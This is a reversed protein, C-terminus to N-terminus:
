FVMMSDVWWQSQATHIAKRATDASASDTFIGYCTAGSGSMRALLCGPQDDIAHLVNKIVPAISIAADTLDNTRDKLLKALAAEDEIPGKFRAQKSFVGTRAKFVTPTEVPVGPNVLVLSLPPLEPADSLDEGIGGVFVPQRRLCMPVDAGLSLGLEALREESLGLGWFRDLARLTAAADSSGGGIGAAVPLRKTLQIAVDRFAPGAEDALLRAAQLVLNNNDPGMNSAFPGDSSFSIGSKLPAPQISITDGSATFIALSDIEHYGDERKGMVHLYLNLKAPARVSVSAGPEGSLGSSMLTDNAM